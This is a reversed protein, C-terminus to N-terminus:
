KFQKDHPSYGYLGLSQNCNHCLVRYGEPYNNIKLWVALNMGSRERFHRRGGGNIHDIALFEIRNEGCCACKGGYYNIAAIRAKDRYSKMNALNRDRNKYYREKCDEIICSKCRSKYKGNPKKYFESLDKEKKCKSCIKTTKNMKEGAM